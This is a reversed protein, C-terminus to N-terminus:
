SVCTVGSQNERWCFLKFDLWLWIRNCLGWTSRHKIPLVQVVAYIVIMIPRIM